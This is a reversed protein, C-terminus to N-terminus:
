RGDDDTRHGFGCLESLSWACLFPDVRQRIYVRFYVDCQSLPGCTASRRDCQSQGVEMGGSGRAAAM